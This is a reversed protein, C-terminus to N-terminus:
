MVVHKKETNEIENTAVNSLRASKLTTPILKLDKKLNQLYKDYHHWRDVSTRYLPKRVQVVSATYVNRETRHFDQCCSEWELGIFDILSKSEAEQQEILNEYEIEHIQLPLVEKWHSMLRQYQQYYHALDHLAGSYDHKGAFNTFYCSLCVDLPHRKCHIIKANPFLLAILGLHMFNSPMKDTVRIEAHQMLEHIHSEYITALETMVKQSNVGLCDPYPVITNMRKPIVLLMNEILSLEGAAVVRSHSSIIQEVLTSGSRPMGVIFVPAESESGRAAFNDFFEGSFVKLLDDVFKENKEADYSLGKVINATSYNAFAQNYDGDGDFLTGLGFYFSAQTNSPLSKVALMKKVDGIKEDTILSRDLKMLGHFNRPDSPNLSFAKKFFALAQSNKGSILYLRALEGLVWENEDLEIIKHYQDIAQEINGQRTLTIALQKRLDVNNEEINLGATLFEIAEELMGADRAILALGRLAAINNKDELFISQYLDNAQELLGMAYFTKAKEILEPIIKKIKTM